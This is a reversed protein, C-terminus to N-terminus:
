AERRVITTVRCQRAAAPGWLIIVRVTKTDVAGAGGVNDAINTVLTYTDGKPDTVVQSFDTNATDDLDANNAPQADVLLASDFPEALLTELQDQAIHLATTGGRSLTNGRMAYYQMQFMGLLAFALLGLAIVVEILTFGRQRTHTAM